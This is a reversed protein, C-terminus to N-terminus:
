ITSSVVHCFREKCIKPPLNYLVRPVTIRLPELRRRSASTTIKYWLPPKESSIFFCALDYQIISATLVWRWICIWTRLPESASFDIQHCFSRSMEDQIVDDGTKVREYIPNRCDSTVAVCHKDWTRRRYRGVKEM